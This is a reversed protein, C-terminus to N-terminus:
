LNAWRWLGDGVTVCCECDRDSDLHRLTVQGAVLIVDCSLTGQHDCSIRWGWGGDSVIKLSILAALLVSISCIDASLAETSTVVSSLLKM